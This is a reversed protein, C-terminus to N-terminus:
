VFSGCSHSVFGGGSFAATEYGHDWLLEPLTDFDQELRVNGCMGFHVAGHRQPDLGTFMSAHSPLTWSSSAIANDFRIGEKALRDINPSTNREYGYCGLHDARLTDISVLIINRAPTVPRPVIVPPTWLFEGRRAETGTLSRAELVLVTKQRTAAPLTLVLDRWRGARDKAM